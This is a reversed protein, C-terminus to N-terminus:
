VIMGGGFNYFQLTGPLPTKAPPSPNLLPTYALFVAGALVTLTVPDPVKLGRAIRLIPRARSVKLKKRLKYQFPAYYYSM